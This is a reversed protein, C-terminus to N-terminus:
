EQPRAPTLPADDLLPLREREFEEIVDESLLAPDEGYQQTALYALGMSTAFFAAALWGTMKGIFGIPGLSGFVTNSAGGGFSAGAEAGKGQQMLVLAVVGIALLVHVILVISQM